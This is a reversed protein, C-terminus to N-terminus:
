CVKKKGKPNGRYIDEDKVVLEDVYIYGHFTGGGRPHVDADVKVNDEGYKDVYFEVEDQFDDYDDYSVKVEVYDDHQPNEKGKFRELGKGADPDDVYRDFRLRKYDDDGREKQAQTPPIASQGGRASHAHRRSQRAYGVDPDEWSPEDIFKSVDIRKGPKKVTEIGRAALSKRRPEGHWGRGDNVRYYDLGKDEIFDVFDDINDARSRIRWYDDGDIFKPMYRMEIRPVDDPRHINHEDVWEEIDRELNEDEPVKMQIQSWRPNDRFRELGKGIDDDYVFKDFRLRKYDDDGREKQAQTPHIVSQGGRASHGHRRRQSAYGVDPPVWSHQDTFQSVDVRKGPEVVTEVGRAALSKRRPEGHWGRGDGPNLMYFDYVKKANYEDVKEDWAKTAVDKYHHLVDVILEYRRGDREEIEKIEMIAPYVYKEPIIYDGVSLEKDTEVLVKSENPNTKPDLGRKERVKRLRERKNDPNSKADKLDKIMGRISKKVNDSMEFMDITRNLARIVEDKTAKGDSIMGYLDEMTRYIDERDEFRIIGDFKKLGPEVFKIRPNVLPVSEESVNKREEDNEYEVM